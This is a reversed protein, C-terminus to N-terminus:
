HCLRKGTELIALVVNGATVAACLWFAVHSMPYLWKGHPICDDNWMAYGGFGLLLGNLMNLLFFVAIRLFGDLCAHDTTIEENSTLAVLAGGGYICAFLVAFPLYVLEAIFTGWLWWGCGVADDYAYRLALAGCVWWAIVLCCVTCGGGFAVSETRDMEELGVITRLTAIM